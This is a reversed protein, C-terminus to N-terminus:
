SQAAQAFLLLGHVEGMQYLTSHTLRQPPMIMTKAM